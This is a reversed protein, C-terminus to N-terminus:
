CGELVEIADKGREGTVKIKVKVEVRALSESQLRLKFTFIGNGVQIEMDQKGEYGLFIVRDGMVKLLDCLEQSEPHIDKAVRNNGKWALNRDEVKEGPHRDTRVQILRVSAHKIIEDKNDIAARLFFVGSGIHEDLGAIYIKIKWIKRRASTRFIILCLFFSLLGFVLLLIGVVNNTPFLIAIGSGVAVLGFSAIFSIKEGITM